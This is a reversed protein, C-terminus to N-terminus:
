KKSKAKIKKEQVLMQKTPKKVSGKNKRINDWLGRKSMSGDARKIMAGAKAQPKRSPNLGKKTAEEYGRLGQITKMDYGSLSSKGELARNFGQKYYSSDIATPTYKKNKFFSRKTTKMNSYDPKITTKTTTTGNKAKKVPGGNKKENMSKRIEDDTYKIGLIGSQNAKKTTTTKGDKSTKTVKGIEIAGSPMRGVYDNTLVNGIRNKKTYLTDLTPLETTQKTTTGGNKLTSGKFPGKKKILPGNPVKTIKAM